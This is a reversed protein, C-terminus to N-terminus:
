AKSKPVPPLAGVRITRRQAVRLMWLTLLAYCLLAILAGVIFPLTYDLLNGFYDNVVYGYITVYRTAVLPRMLTIGNDLLTALTLTFMYSLQSSHISVEGTLLLAIALVVGILVLPRSVFAWALTITPRKFEASAMMGCAATFALNALTLLFIVGVALLIQLPLPQIVESVQYGYRGIQVSRSDNANFFIIAAARLLGLRVYAPFQHQVTALWKGYVIQRADIGTLLLMDWNVIQKERVLSNASFALTQFMLMFHRLVTYVIFVIALVRFKAAIPSPDRQLLAGAFEGGLLILGITLMLWELALLGSRLWLRRQPQRQQYALEARSIANPPFWAAPLAIKFM